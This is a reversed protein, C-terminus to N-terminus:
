ASSTEAIRATLQHFLNVANINVGVEMRGGNQPDIVRELSALSDEIDKLYGLAYGEDLLEIPLSYISPTIVGRRHRQNPNVSGDALRQDDALKKGKYTGSHRVEMTNAYWDSVSIRHRETARFDNVAGSADKSRTNVLMVIEAAGEYSQIPTIGDNLADNIDNDDLWDASDFAPPINFDTGRYNDFNYAKDVEERKQVIAMVNAAMDAPPLQGNKQWIVHGREYNDANVTTTLAAQAGTSAVWYTCRLGPRPDSKTSVHTKIADWSAATQISFAMYYFLRATVNALASALQTAETTSGEAGPTSTGNGLFDNTLTNETLFTLGKGSTISVQVRIIPLTGDGSSTGFAKATITLAGAVATAVVPLWTKANISAALAAAVVTETDGTKFAAQSEVNCITAFVSGSGTATGVITADLNAKAPSGGTTEAVPLVYLKGTKNAALWARGGRHLWSGAGAGDEVDKENRVQYVQGATFSGGALMPMVLASTRIGSSASSPGQAVLIEAYFGPNRFNSPVGVIPILSM